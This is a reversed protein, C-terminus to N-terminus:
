LGRFHITLVVFLIFLDCSKILRFGYNDMSYVVSIDQNDMISKPAVNFHTLSFCIEGMLVCIIM